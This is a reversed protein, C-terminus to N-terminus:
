AAKRFEFFPDVRALVLEIHSPEALLNLIVLRFDLM